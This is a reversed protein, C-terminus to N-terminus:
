RRRSDQLRQLSQASNRSDAKIAVLAADRQARAAELQAVQATSANQLADLRQEDAALQTDLDALQAIETDIAQIVGARARGFYSYYACM